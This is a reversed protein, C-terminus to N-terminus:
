MRQQRTTAVRETHNRLDDMWDDPRSHLRPVAVGDRVRFMEPRDLRVRHQSARFCPQGAPFVLWNEHESVAQVTYQRGSHTADHRQQETLVDWRLRWGRAYPECGANECARGSGIEAPSPDRFHTSVPATITYTRHDPTHM